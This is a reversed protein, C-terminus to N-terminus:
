PSCSVSAFFGNLAPKAKVKPHLPDPSAGDILVAAAGSRFRLAGKHDALGRFLDNFGKGRDPDVHRSCGNQLVLPLADRDSALNSYAPNGRLSALAGMGRDAVVFTLKGPRGHYTLSGTHQAGSHEVLNDLMELMAATLQSANRASFGAAMAAAKARISLRTRETEPLADQSLHLMGATADVELLQNRASAQLAPKLAHGQTIAALPAQLATYQQALQGLELLAGIDAIKSPARFSVARGAEASFAWDDVMSFSLDPAQM